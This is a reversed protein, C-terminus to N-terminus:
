AEHLRVGVAHPVSGRLCGGGTGAPAPAPTQAHDDGSPPFDGDSALDRRLGAQYTADIPFRWILAIAALKFLVPLLGYLAALVMLSTGANAGGGPTAAANFGVLSLLPYAIGPATALALKGVMGSLAFMLGARQRGSEVHDLDVVDAQIASPFTLDAGLALGTALCVALFPWFDGPGLFLVTPFIAAAWLMSVSWSRHKSWQRSLRLWLPGGLIASAFYVLLLLGKQQNDAQLVHDAYLIFLTGPLGNAIGNALTAALLRRFPGNRLLLRVRTGARQAAKGPSGPKGPVSDDPNGQGMRGPSHPEPVIAILGILSLPLALVVIWGITGLAAAQDEIDDGGALAYLLLASILGLVIFVQRYGTVRAREHYDASLEAGWAFLPLITLTTGVTLVLSWVMLHPWGIDSPPLFLQWTALMLLPVGALVFPRRLGVRDSLVGVLPDTVMDVLRAGMIVLGIVALDIGLSAAYFPPLVLVVVLSLIALPMAPLGYALLLTRSLSERGTGSQFETM